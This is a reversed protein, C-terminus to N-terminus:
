IRSKPNVIQIPWSQGNSRSSLPPASVSFSLLYAGTEVVPMAVTSPVMARQHASVTQAKIPLEVDVVAGGLVPKFHMFIRYPSKGGLAREESYPNSVWFLLAIRSGTLVKAPVSEVEIQMDYLPAFDPHVVLRVRRRPTSLELELPRWVTDEIGARLEVAVTQHAWDRFDVRENFQNPESYVSALATVEIGRAYRHLVSAGLADGELVVREVGQKTLTDAWAASRAANGSMGLYRHLPPTAVLVGVFFAVVLAGVGGVFLVYREASKREVAWRAILYLLSLIAPMVWVGSAAGAVGGVFMVATTVLVLLRLVLEIPEMTRRWKGVVLVVAPIIWLPNFVVFWAVVAGFLGKTDGREFLHSVIPWGHELQWVFSPILLASGVALGAWVRWDGLRHPRMLAFSLLVAAMLFISYLTTSGVWAWGLGFALAWVWSRSRVLGDVAWVLLAAGCFLTTEDSAMLGYLQLLPQSFAVLVYSVAVLWEREPAVGRRVVTYFLGLAGLQLLIFFLRVGLTTEGLFSQGAVVWTPSLLGHDVYGWDLEQATYALYCEMGNLESVWGWAGLLVAWFVLGVVVWLWPKQRFMM